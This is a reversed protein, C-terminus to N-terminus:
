LRKWDTLWSSLQAVASTSQAYIREAEHFDLLDIGRLDPKLYLNPPTADLRLEIIRQMMVDFMGMVSRFFHPAQQTDEGPFGMVDIAVVGDNETLVDHPVPNVGGGDVLWRGDHSVPTFIGPLSMSARIAELLDGEEFIKEEGTWFDAAIIKLPIELEDFRSVGLADHLVEIFRNGKILGSPQFSLDFFELGRLSQRKRSWESWRDAKSFIWEHAWERISAAPKGSAYLAGIIAGASTGSICDPRMELLDFVELLPIHALGRAGGGGLALGLTKM